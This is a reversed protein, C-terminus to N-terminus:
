LKVLLFLLLFLLLQLKGQSMSKRREDPGDDEDEFNSVKRKHIICFLKTILIQAAEPSHHIKTSIGDLALPVAGLMMDGFM